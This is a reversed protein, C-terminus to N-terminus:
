SYVIVLTIHFIQGIKMDFHRGTSWYTTVTVAYLTFASSILDFQIVLPMFDIAGLSVMHLYHVGGGGGGGGGVCVCMCVYLWLCVCVFEMHQPM